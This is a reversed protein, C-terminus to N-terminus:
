GEPRYFDKGKLQTKYMSDTNLQQHYLKMTLHGPDTTGGLIYLPDGKYLNYGHEAKEIAPIENVNNSGCYANGKDVICLQTSSCHNNNLYEYCFYTAPFGVQNTTLFYTVKM